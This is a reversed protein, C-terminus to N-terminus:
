PSFSVRNRGEQKANYMAADARELLSERSDGDAYQAVGLSM